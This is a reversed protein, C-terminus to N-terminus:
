EGDKLILLEDELKCLLEHKVEIRQELVAISEYLADIQDNLEEERDVLVEMTVGREAEQQADM